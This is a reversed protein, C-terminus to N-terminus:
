YSPPPRPPPGWFMDHPMQGNPLLNPPLNFIPMPMSSTSQDAAAAATAATATGGGAVLGSGSGHSQQSATGGGSVQQQVAEPPAGGADVVNGEPAANTEQDEVPLREYTANSFTAAIVLVPGSAVLPGVVGGGVVQGQGGALYVTLGTAGPPSPSPLFAGSLSLIEFRGHLTVVGGPAAPQRLTVNTVIGSGSLVSVGRHRRQAFTALSDAIDAGTNIELVHSRLANPSEKTIVIPPKPKNKSGPPRGRPRRGSSGGSNGGSGFEVMEFGVGGGSSPNQNDESEHNNNDRSDDSDPNQNGNNANEQQQEMKPNDSMQEVGRMAVNGAWWRNAM